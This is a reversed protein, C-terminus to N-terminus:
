ESADAGCTILALCLRSRKEEEIGQGLGELTRMPTEGCFDVQNVLQGLRQDDVHASLLEILREDMQEVAHHVLTRGNTADALLPDAGAKLLTQVVDLSSVSKQSEEEVMGHSKFACLLPTLGMGNQANLETRQDACLAQVIATMGRTAAYHLPMDRELRTSQVNPNAGAELLYTVVETHSKQVALMLPSEGVGNPMDFPLPGDGTQLESGSKLMQEVLAYIKALDMHSTVIHLLTDRDADQFTLAGPHRQICKCTWAFADDMDEGRILARLREKAPRHGLFESSGQKTFTAQAPGSVAGGRPAAPLSQPASLPSEGGGGGACPSDGSAMSRPSGGDSLSAKRSLVPSYRRSYELIFDSLDDPLESRESRGGPSMLLHSMDPGASSAPSSGPSSLVSDRGGNSSWGGSSWNSPLGCEYGYGQAMAPNLSSPDMVASQPAAANFPMLHPAEHAAAHHQQQHQAAYPHFPHAAHVIFNARVPGRAILEAEKKEEEETKAKDTQKQQKKEQQQQDKDSQQLQKDEQKKAENGVAEKKEETKKEADVGGDGLMLDAYLNRCDRSFKATTNTKRALASSRLSQLALHDAPSVSDDVRKKGGGSKGKKDEASKKADSGLSVAKDLQAALLDVAGDESSVPKAKAAPLPIARAILCNSSAM